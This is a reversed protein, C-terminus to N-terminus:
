YEHESKIVRVDCPAHRVAFHALGATKCLTDTVGEIFSHSLGKSGVCLVDAKKEYCAKILDDRPSMSEKGIKCYGNIHPPAYEKIMEECRAEIAENNKAQAEQLETKMADIQSDLLRFASGIDM